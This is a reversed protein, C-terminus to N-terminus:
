RCVLDSRSQLESTHEESRRNDSRNSGISQLQMRRFHFVLMRFHPFTPYRRGIAVVTICTLLQICTSNKTHAMINNEPQAWECGCIPLADHLSLTYLASTTT